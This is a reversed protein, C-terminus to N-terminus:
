IGAGISKGGDVYITQGTIFNTKESVLFSVTNAVDEPKGMTKTPQTQILKELVEKKLKKTLPTDILGPAVANVSVNYKGLELALARTLGIVGAKSASYNTQGMNGMWARSSINIICGSNQQKMKKAAERCMLWTGKLNVNIVLDFDVTNMNWIMNDRIIGANNVLVDIRGYTKEISQFLAIVQKEDSIDTLYFAAKDKGIEKLANDGSSKDVDILLVFFGDAVLRQSIANGIGKGAGTVIAIQKSM